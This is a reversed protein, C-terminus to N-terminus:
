YMMIIKDQNYVLIQSFDIVNKVMDLLFLVKEVVLTSKINFSCKFEKKKKYLVGM